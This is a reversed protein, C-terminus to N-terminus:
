KAYEKSWLILATMNFLLMRGNEHIFRTKCLTELFVKNLYTDIFDNKEQLLSTLVAQYYPGLRPDRPLASKKRTAFTPTLWQLAVQRLLNKEVGNKFGLAPPILSSVELVNQNAFPVRAELGYNMTHIDGNHLLRQLWKRQVLSSMALQNEEVTKDFRFGAEKAIAHYQENLYHFPETAAIISPSLMSVRDNGGFAQLLSSPNQNLLFFYGYHTEDAADGVLVAKVYQSACSSLYHQSFEQEWAPIRDNIICLDNICPTVVTQHLPINLQESLRKAYPLDDSNVITEPNFHIDAHNEFAVSFAMLRHKLYNSAMSTILSSDLGGSLFVGLKTEAGLSVKVSKELAVSLKAILEKETAHSSNWSPQVYRKERVGNRDLYLYCGPELYMIEKFISQTGGGSFYPAIVYEVLAFPNIEVSKELVKILAKIESAFIFTSGYRYYVFPKVGLPDRAVFAKEEHRDWILFSFMGNFHQLCHEKWVLWAALIVETDSYTSFQYNSELEEKLEAYNYLEGNFVIFYRGTADSFPQNGGVADMFTLRQHCLLHQGLVIYNQSDPGRHKQAINFIKAKQILNEECGQYFLIGAIGCM